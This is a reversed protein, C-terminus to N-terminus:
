QKEATLLVVGGDEEVFRITLTNGSVCYEHSEPEEDSPEEGVETDDITVLNGETSYTGTSVTQKPPQPEEGGLICGGEADAGELAECTAGPALTEVCSSAVFLGGEVTLTQDADFTGDKGFTVVGTVDVTFRAEPKETCMAFPDEDAEGDGEDDDVGATFCAASYTWTGSLDGGCATFDDGCQGGVQEGLGDENIKFILTFPTFHTTQAVAKGDKVTTPLTQWKNNSDLWAVVVEGDARAKVGDMAFALEVPKLFTTGDPGFDYVDILVNKEDPKGSKSTVKVSVELDSAVAGPPVSLAAAGAELEGGEAASVMASEETGAFSKFGGGTNDGDGESGCACLAVMLGCLLGRSLMKM